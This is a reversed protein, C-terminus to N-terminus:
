KRTLQSLTNVATLPPRLDVVVTFPVPQKHTSGYEQLKHELSGKYHAEIPCGKEVLFLDESHSGDNKQYRLGIVFANALSTPKSVTVQRLEGDDQRLRIGQSALLAVVDDKTKSQDGSIHRNWIAEVDAYACSM